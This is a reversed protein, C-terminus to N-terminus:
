RLNVSVSFRRTEGKKVWQLGSKNEPANPPGMWPEVCFFPSADALTWTVFVADAPPV